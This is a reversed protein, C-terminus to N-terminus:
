GAVLYNGFPMMRWDPAFPYGPFREPLSDLTECADLLRTLFRDATELSGSEEILYDRIKGRDRAIRPAYEVRFKM